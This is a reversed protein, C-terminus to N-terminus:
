FFKFLGKKELQQINFISSQIDFISTFFYVEPKIKLTKLKCVGLLFFAWDTERNPM